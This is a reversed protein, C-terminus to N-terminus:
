IKIFIKKRYLWLCFLWLVFLETASKWVLSYYGAPGFITETISTGYALDITGLHTSLTRSIWPKLLQAMCYMAISNRGVVVLPFSWAKLGWWDIVTYFGALMWLTWGTSFITWTPTWIRKVVPCLTWDCGSISIPWITTDAALTVIFCATGWMLLKAVRKKSSNPRRLFTGAMLGFIMTAISPIFNLTQYGGSNIWFRKGQWPENSRPFRNLLDRDVAAAANTHKNWAAAMGSFQTWEGKGKGAVHELYEIVQAQEHPDPTYQFFFYWYGVLIVAAAIGQVLVARNVLLYVFLYGLGIQTLVNVFTFNTTQSGNSSLFVGLLILVVSRFSAHCFRKFGSDGRDKRKAYSFPLAVGVMFMFSPQILDWFSCGSWAVHGLQYSLEPWIARWASNWATGMFQQMTEPHASLTRAIGFGASAMALMVFGRYADLSRLREAKPKTKSEKPEAAAEVPFGARKPYM